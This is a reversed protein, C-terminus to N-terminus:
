AISEPHCPFIFVRFALQLWSSHILRPGQRTRSARYHPFFLHVSFQNSQAPVFLVLIHIASSSHISPFNISDLFGLLVSLQIPIFVRPGWCCPLFSHVLLQILRSSHISLFGFLVPVQNSKPLIFLRSAQYCFLLIIQPFSILHPFGLLVPLIFAHLGRQNRSSGYCPFSYLLLLIFPHFGRQNRPSHICPFGISAPFFSYCPARNLTVVGIARFSHICLFNISAPFRFLVPLVFLVSVGKSAPLLYCLM